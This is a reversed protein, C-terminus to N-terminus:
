LYSRQDIDFITAKEMDEEAAPLYARSLTDAVYMEDGKKYVIEYDFRQIRLLMRQLRRPATVLSKRQIIELPKHDSEIKVHRGYTYNRFTRFWFLLWYIKRSKPM